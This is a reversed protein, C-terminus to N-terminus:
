KKVIEIDKNENQETYHQWKRSFDVIKLTFSELWSNNFILYRASRKTYPMEEGDEYFGKWDVLGYEVVWSKLKELEQEQKEWDPSTPNDYTESNIRSMVKNSSTTGWRRVKVFAEGDESLKVWVGQEQGELDEKIFYIDM